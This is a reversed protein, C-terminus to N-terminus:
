DILHLYIKYLTSNKHATKLTLILFRFDDDLILDEMFRQIKLPVRPVIVSFFHVFCPHHM